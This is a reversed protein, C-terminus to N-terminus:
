PKKKKNEGGEGSAGGGSGEGGEGGERAMYDEVWAKLDKDLVAWWGKGPLQKAPLGAQAVLKKVTEPCFPRSPSLRRGISRLTRHTHDPVAPLSAINPRPIEHRLVDAIESHCALATFKLLRSITKEVSSPPPPAPPLPAPSIPSSSTASPAPRAPPRAPPKAAAAEGRLTTIPRGQTSPRRAM